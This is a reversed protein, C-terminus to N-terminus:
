SKVCFEYSRKTLIYVIGGIFCNFYKSKHVTVKYLVLVGEFLNKMWFKYNESGSMEQQRWQQLDWDHLEIKVLRLGLTAIENEANEM